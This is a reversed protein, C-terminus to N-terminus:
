GLPAVSPRGARATLPTGARRSLMGSPTTACTEGARRPPEPSLSRSRGAGGAWHQREQPWRVGLCGLAVEAQRGPLGPSMQMLASLGPVAAPSDSGRHAPPLSISPTDPVMTPAWCPTSERSVATSFIFSRSLSHIFSRVM